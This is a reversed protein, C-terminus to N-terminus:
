MIDLLYLRAQHMPVLFLMLNSHSLIHELKSPLTETILSVAKVRVLIENAAPVQTEEKNVTIDEYSAGKNIRFVTQTSMHLSDGEVVLLVEQDPLGGRPVWSVDCRMKRLHTHATDNDNNDDAGEGEDQQGGIAGYLPYYLSALYEPAGATTNQNTTTMAELYVGLGGDDNDDGDDDLIGAAIADGELDMADSIDNAVPTMADSALHYAPVELNEDFNKGICHDM